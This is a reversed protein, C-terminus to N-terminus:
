LRAVCCSMARMEEKELSQIYLVIKGVLMVDRM